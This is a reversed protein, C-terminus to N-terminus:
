AGEELSLQGAAAIATRENDAALVRETEVGDPHAAWWAIRARAIAVYEAEREIGIFRFGERM